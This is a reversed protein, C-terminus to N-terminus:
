ACLKTGLWTQSPSRATVKSVRCAPTRKQKKVRQPRLISRPNVHMEWWTLGTLCKASLLSEEDMSATLSNWWDTLVEVSGPEAPQQPSLQACHPEPVSNGMPFLSVSPLALHALPWPCFPTLATLAAERYISCSSRSPCPAPDLLVGPLCSLLVPESLPPLGKCLIIKPHEPKYLIM